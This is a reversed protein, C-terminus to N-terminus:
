SPVSPWMACVQHKRIDATPVFHDTYPFPVIIASNQFRQSARFVGIYDVFMGFQKHRSIVEPFYTITIMDPYEEVNNSPM